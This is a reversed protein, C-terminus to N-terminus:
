VGELKCIDPIEKGHEAWGVDIKLINYFDKIDHDILKYGTSPIHRLEHYALLKLQNESMYDIQHMYFVICFKKNTFYGIPHNILSYTRASANPLTQLESLVLLNDMEVHSVDERASIVQRVIDELYEDREWEPEQFLDIV